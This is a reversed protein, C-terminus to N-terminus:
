RGTSGCQAEEEVDVPGTTASERIWAQVIAAEELLEGDLRKRAWRPGDTRPATPNRGGATQPSVDFRIYRHDSLTEVEVAVRWDHVRSAVSPSAFSVDVISGGRQRVCTYVSGRNLVTLGTTVAWEELAEGKADTVPSGWAASKANLDGLLLVPRPHYRNVVAGLEVLFSEFDALSKNPSFYAGVIGVGDALAAM